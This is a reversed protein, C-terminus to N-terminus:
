MTPDPVWFTFVVQDGQALDQARAGVTQGLQPVHGAPLADVGEVLVLVLYPCKQWNM